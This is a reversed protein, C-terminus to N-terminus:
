LRHPWDGRRERQQRMEETLLEYVRDCLRQMDNPNEALHDAWQQLLTDQQNTQKNQTM